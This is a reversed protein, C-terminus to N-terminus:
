ARNFSYQKVSIGRKYFTWSPSVGSQDGASSVCTFQTVVIVDDFPFMKRTVPGKHPSNVPWRHIVRMFAMPASSQHKRQDADLCVASYLISVILSSSYLVSDVSWIKVYDSWQNTQLRVAVEQLTLLWSVPIESSSPWFKGQDLFDWLSHITWLLVIQGTFVLLSWCCQNIYIISKM